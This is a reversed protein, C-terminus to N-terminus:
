YSRAAMSGRRVQALTRVTGMGYLNSFSASDQPYDLFNKYISSRRFLRWPIVSQGRADMIRPVSHGGVEATARVSLRSPDRAMSLGRVKAVTRGRSAGALTAM